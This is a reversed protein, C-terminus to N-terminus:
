DRMNMCVATGVATTYQQLLEVSLNKMTKSRASVLSVCFLMQRRRRSSPLSVTVASAPFVTSTEGGGQRELPGTPSSGAPLRTGAEM